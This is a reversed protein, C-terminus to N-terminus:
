LFGFALSSYIICTFVHYSQSILICLTYFKSKKGWLLSYPYYPSFQVNSAPLFLHPFRPMFTEGREGKRTEFTKGSIAWVNWAKKVTKYASFRLAIIKALSKIQCCSLYSCSRLHGAASIRCQREVVPLPCPLIGNSFKADWQARSHM